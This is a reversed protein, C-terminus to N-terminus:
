VEFLDWQNPLALTSKDRLSPRMKKTASGVESTVWAQVAGWFVAASSCHQSHQAGESQCIITVTSGFSPM